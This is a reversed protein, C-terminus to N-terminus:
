SLDDSSVTVRGLELRIPLFSKLRTVLEDYQDSGISEPLRVFPMAVRNNPWLQPLDALRNKALKLRKLRAEGFDAQEYLVKTTEHKGDPVLGLIIDRGLNNLSVVSKEFYVGEGELEQQNREAIRKYAQRLTEPLEGPHEISRGRRMKGTKISRKAQETDYLEAQDPPVGRHVLILQLEGAPSVEYGNPSLIPLSFTQCEPQAQFGTIDEPYTITTELSAAVSRVGLVKECANTTFAVFQEGGKLVRGIQINAFGSPSPSIM